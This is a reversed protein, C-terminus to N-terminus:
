KPCNCRSHDILKQDDLCLPFFHREGHVDHRGMTPPDANANDRMRNGYTGLSFGMIRPFTAEMEKRTVGHKFQPKDKIM